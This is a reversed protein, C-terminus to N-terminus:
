VAPVRGGSAVALMRERDHLKVRERGLSEGLSVEARDIARWGGWDVVGGSVSSWLPDLPARGSAPEVKGATVDELLAGVTEIADKRNTGIVGSPGRKAWGVVYVGPVPSDGELVRGARNPITGTREDFPLGVSADSRYGISRFVVGTGLRETGSPTAFTVSELGSRGEFADPVLHFRLHISRSRGGVPPAALDALIGMRRACLTDRAVEAEQAADLVLDGPRVVVSTHDMSGLELLEKNSYKAFAPGRRAAVLVERIRSEALVDIVHEPVDTRRLEDPTRCLMRAVDLAVNGAGIVVAREGGLDFSPDRADPHGSYWAVLETASHVGALNEGPIDLRRDRDAGSAVIVADHSARLAEITIDSGVRVNGHFRVRPDELIESFSTVISKIRPHDPAVGYRVLGFPAPLRELVDVEVDLGPAECLEQACYAGSPGSGVIAVRLPAM